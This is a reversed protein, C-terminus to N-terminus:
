LATVKADLLQNETLWRVIAKALVDEIYGKHNHPKKLFKYGSKAQILFESGTKDLKQAYSGEGTYVIVDEKIFLATDYMEAPIEVEFGSETKYIKLTDVLNMSLHKKAFEEKIYKRIDVALEMLKEDPLM